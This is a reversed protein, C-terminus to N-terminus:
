TFIYSHLSSFCEVHLDTVIIIFTGESEPEIECDTENETDESRSM